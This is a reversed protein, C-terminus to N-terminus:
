PQRAVSSKRGPLSGYEGHVFPDAPAVSVELGAPMAPLPPLVEWVLVPLHSLISLTDAQVWSSRGEWPAEGPGQRLM